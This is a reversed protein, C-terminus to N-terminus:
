GRGGLRAQLLEYIERIMQHHRGLVEYRKPENAWRELKRKLRGLEQLNSLYRQANRRVQNSDISGTLIALEEPHVASDDYYAYRFWSLGDFIEGGAMFYLPTLLPDLSGFVHIPVGDAGSDDLLRRLRALCVLRDVLADGLEKETVGVAAFARLDPADPALRAPDICREDDPPKLLFDVKLHPRQTMFQQAAERQRQYSPRNPDPEDYTVVLMDRDKPLRDVLAEFEDRSFPHWEQRGRPIEGSGFEDSLEYGGSDVVLLTPTGYLTQAHEPGLAREHDPLLGHHLDYASVLLAETMDASTLPLVMGAESIGDVVPFGKSSVSPILLPGPLGTRTLPLQRSRAL